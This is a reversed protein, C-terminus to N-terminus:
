NRIEEVKIVRGQKFSEALAKLWVHMGKLALDIRNFATRLDAINFNPDALDKFLQRQSKVGDKLFLNTEYCDATSLVYQGFDKFYVITKSPSDNLLSDNYTWLSQAIFLVLKEIWATADKVDPRPDSRYQRVVHISNDHITKLYSGAKFFRDSLGAHTSITMCAPIYQEDREFRGKMWKYEAIKLHNFGSLGVGDNKPLVSLEYLPCIVQHRPPADSTMQGAGQPSFLDISIYVECDEQKDMRAKPLQLPVQYQRHLTETIEIRYGGETIARCEQLVLLSRTPDYNIKPYLSNDSSDRLPPLLGFQTGQFLSARVDRLADIWARDSAAFDKATVRMGDIWNVPYYQLEDLEFM